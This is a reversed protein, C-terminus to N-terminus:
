GFQRGKKFSFNIRVGQIKTPSGKSPNIVIGL